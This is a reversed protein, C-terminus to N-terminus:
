TGGMDLRRIRITLDGLTEHGEEYLALWEEMQAASLQATLPSLHDPLQLLAADMGPLDARGYCDDIRGRLREEYSYARALYREVDLEEDSGTPPEGTMQAPLEPPLEDLDAAETASPVGLGDLASLDINEFSALVRAEREEDSLNELPDSQPTQTLIKAALQQLALEALSNLNVYLFYFSQRDM